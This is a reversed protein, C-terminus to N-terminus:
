RLVTGLINERPIPGYIRSDESNGRNDGLVFYQDKGCVVWQDGRKTLYAYTRTGEPLYPEDLERGNLYVHGSRLQISDGARGIIRKVVCDNDKPDRLVVIDSPQPDRILYTWRDLLYHDANHLTPAMSVGVVEVTQLVHKSFFWYSGCAMAAVLACQFVQKLLCPVLASVSSAARKFQDSREQGFSNERRVAEPGTEVAMELNELNMAVVILEM